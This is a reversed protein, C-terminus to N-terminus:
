RDVNDLMWVTSKQSNMPLILRGAGLAIKPYYSRNLLVSAPSDPLATVQAPVGTQAGTSSNVRARWVNMWGAGHSSTFYMLRGDPSWQPNGPEEFGEGISRWASRQM